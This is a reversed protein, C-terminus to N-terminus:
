SDNNWSEESRSGVNSAGHLALEVASRIEALWQTKNGVECYGILKIPPVEPVM